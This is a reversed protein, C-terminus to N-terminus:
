FTYSASVSVNIGKKYDNLVIKEGNGNAERSLKYSPNLLNRAKLNLSLHDNLRAQSVFDLTLTGREMIDQYGQTGITYVKDSVYNLVLTNVFSKKGSTYSHSLDFNAIWPAAGELQSGSTSTALPVKANTYIYSGNLGASLRSTGSGEKGATRTFLNKRIEMEVGAITAHGAINEYSLYGGASAVEIRSIPNKIYKYFGTLSILESPTPNFDWKLDINYNDSPKLDPNGQSSFNVGVYRYPSIEKPQPLTYTKSAGLRFSHKSTLNYKLNVSPLFFNEKIENSGKSGGKNVDYDIKINVNDFKVGVNATWRPGFQYTGELYASHIHKTVDYTDLNEQIEFKGASLNEQNYYEDLSFDDLSTYTPSTYTPMNYETAEFRDDVIRGTYGVRISSPNEEDNNLRYTLGAKMNVDNEALESYYRQQSNGRLLGYGNETKTLNNIRRDPEYGKILNYGIGADLGLTKTLTWRSTLQNVLLLNDNSQQRRTLGLNGYDDDFTSNKGNYDGVSQTNSRVMMLNYGLRHKRNMDYEANALVLQSINETYKQGTMDKYVTGETTTNRVTEETYDYDTAHSATLFFSLRDAGENLRLEKGGAMHYSRDMQFSQGSPDLKNGFSYKGLDSSPHKRDSIGLVNVGDMKLFDKAVTQTNIGGSIGVSLSGSGTLEKSAIDINAGGVDGTGSASFAKNVGISQIIDTGFFDLSINKYEPDESPVPFGNFTTANYRDGLGRVFVNKVGEQKSIGSVKTVASEADSAGKRSLEKAAVAQVALVSRRQELLAANESERSAKGVVIVDGLVQEDTDLELNLIVVKSNEIKIKKRVATKYGVYKIEIDYIGDKVDKLEFNGDLDTVTGTSSGMLQITAGILPEKSKKDKISGKVNINVAMLGPTMM